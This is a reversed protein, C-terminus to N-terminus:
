ELLGAKLFLSELQWIRYSLASGSQDNETEPSVLLILDYGGLLRSKM